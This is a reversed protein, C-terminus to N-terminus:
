VLLEFDPIRVVFVGLQAAIVEVIVAKGNARLTALVAFRPRDEGLEPLGAGAAFISTNTGKARDGEMDLAFHSSSYAVGM